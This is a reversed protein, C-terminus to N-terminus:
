LPEKLVLQALRSMADQRALNIVPISNRAALAIATGTGGTKASREQETQAGDKTWCILFESPLDLGEGLVQFVNRTHLRQVAPKLHSWRPHVTAAIAAARDATALSHLRSDSGNFGAWPLYIEKADGAGCEFAADSGDAAGSRLTYGRVRLRTALRRM